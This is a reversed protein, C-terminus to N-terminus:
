SRRKKKRSLAYAGGVAVAALLGGLAWMSAKSSKQSTLPPPPPPPGPPPAPPLEALKVPDEFAKCTMPVYVSPHYMRAAGCTAPGLVGDPTLLRYGDQKLFFNANQQLGATLPGKKGWPYDEEDEKLAVDEPTRTGTGCWKPVCMNVTAVDLQKAWCRDESPFGLKQWKGDKCAQDAAHGQRVACDTFEGVFPGEFCSDPIFTGTDTVVGLAAGISRPREASGLGAAAGFIGSM